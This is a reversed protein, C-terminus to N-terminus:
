LKGGSTLSSLLDAAPQRSPSSVGLDPMFFGLAGKCPHFTLPRANRLEFGYPGFFWPSSHRHVCGVIEAIGVIGGFQLDATTMNCAAENVGKISAVTDQFDMLEGRTMSKSAHILVPGRYSTPWTRNEIDKGLHIIAHAWPQRVSLAKLGVLEAISM